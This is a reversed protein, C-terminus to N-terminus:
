RKKSSKMARKKVHKPIKSQRKLAKEEKAAKKADKKIQKALLRAEPDDRTPLRSGLRARREQWEHEERSDTDSSGDSDSDRDSDSGTNSEHDADHTDNHYSCGTSSTVCDSVASSGTHNGSQDTSGSFLLTDGHPIDASSVIGETMDSLSDSLQSCSSDVPVNSQQTAKVVVKATRSLGEKDGESETVSGINNPTYDTNYTTRTVPRVPSSPLAVLEPPSTENERDTVPVAPQRSSSSAGLMRRVAAEYIPERMGQALRASEQIPNSFEQLSTPIYSQMFVAEDVEAAAEADTTDSEINNKDNEVEIDSSDILQSFISLLTSMPIHENAAKDPGILYPDTVFQFIKSKTLVKVGKKGFFDVINAIDKRLFDNAYPHAHEVSQSVDIIYPHNNHWLINYESLDGHVLNCEYYIRRIYIIIDAFCSTCEDFTLTVDKLRSACWGNSGLFDMVLVHSKLLWPTPCPIDAAHLRKLNRMEKEAWTKVMKRPNSKCYGHRFRYEGSVYRDRDKFVLISTKFIKVAYELGNKGKAYYVNAEKGTSLCGDIELLFGSNLLKFLIMRTRPDLVQESTARDDRGCYNNRKEGKKESRAIDNQTRTSLDLRKGFDAGNVGGKVTAGGLCSDEGMLSVELEDLEDQDEDDNMRDEDIIKEAEYEPGRTYVFNDLLVYKKKKRNSKEVSKLALSNKPQVSDVIVNLCDEDDSADDFQGTVYTAM